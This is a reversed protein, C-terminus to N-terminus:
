CKIEKGAIKKTFPFLFKQWLTLKQTHRKIIEQEVGAVYLTYAIMRDNKCKELEKMEDYLIDRLECLEELTPGKNDANFKDILEDKRFHIPQKILMGMGKQVHSWFLDM